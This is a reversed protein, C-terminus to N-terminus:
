ERKVKFAGSRATYFIKSDAEELRKITEEHPHGYSNGEGYSVISIDPKLVELLAASSSYKSGHHAVKYIITQKESGLYVSRDELYSSINTLLEKEIDLSIDGAFFTIIDGYKMFLVMSAENIDSYAGDVIPSLCVFELGGDKINSGAGFYMISVGSSKALAVLESGKESPSVKEVHPLVLNRIPIKGRKILEVIGSIHDNDCHSVFAYEIDDVDKSELFSELKYEGVSKEDTSGCDVLYDNGCESHIYACDGQGVDLFYLLFGDQKQRYVIFIMCLFSLLMIGKVLIRSVDVVSKEDSADNSNGTMQGLKVMVLLIVGLLLYYLIMMPTSMEGTVVSYAPLKEVFRCLWEYFRLIYVSTGLCIEGLAGWFISVFMGLIAMVLMLGMFPVILLNLLISYTSIRYFLCMNIPLSTFTLSINFLLTKIINNETRFFSTVIPATVAVALMASYSLIFSANTIYFPNGWLLILASLSIASLMDYKRGLVDAIVSMVFMIVARIASVSNGTLISFLIMLVGSIAASSLYRMKKRLLHYLGMGVVSIHLGSISLVHAISNTSYLEKIEEDMYAKEGLVIASLLGMEKEDCQAKLIDVAGERIRYLSDEIFSYDDKDDIIKINCNALNLNSDLNSYFADDGENDVKIKLIVGNSHLYEREDYNGPNDARKMPNVRGTAWLTAGYKIGMVDQLQLWVLGEAVKLEVTYGYEKKVIATVEGTVSTKLGERVEQEIGYQFTDYKEFIKAQINYKCYGSLLAVLCCVVVLKDWLKVKKRVLFLSYCFAMALFFMAIYIVMAAKCDVGIYAALEGILFAVVVM